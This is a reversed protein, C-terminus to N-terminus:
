EMETAQGKSNAEHNKSFRWVGIAGYVRTYPKWESVVTAVVVSLFSCYGELFDRVWKASEKPIRTLNNNYDIFYLGFRPLYGIGWEFDDFASWYFYGKVNVGNKIAEHLYYLHGLVFDVRHEDKLAVDLTLNDNRQETVGNETIYIAPNQYNNKVYELVQQMGKPYIYIYGSGEAEPGILVGDREVTFDVFQDATVSVPPDNSNMPISKAYNTTYYNLGIFDFAGKVLKKEEATFTPLRNRALKRMIKPYDGYVLPNLYWGLQFDLAREAAAEDDSSNSLPEYFQSVLSLGIQGGQKARFKQEYLRFAAAHALLFNHSAIYPETSSNGAPCNNRDSCRGPAATGSEYGYKSAILPENITM